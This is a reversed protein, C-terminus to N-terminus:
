LIFKSLDEDQTLEALRERVYAANIVVRGRKMEPAEFSLEELLREMITYLRRAGINQTTQNVEYAFGALADVADVEFVLEVGETNLLAEYQKTLSGKPETLIRVFDEKVLAELEVRIPFRGQLEPMLDSPKARHFAGAAIFLIHDTHVYGYRTQVTTGEVIPLLDRQVGQRSVDAGHAHESAVVKDIEDVFIIGVNEALEIATANVKEQNILADCEQEFLVKRAQAVTMERRVNHRPLIKEFM